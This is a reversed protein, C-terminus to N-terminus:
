TETSALAAVIATHLPEDPTLGCVETVAAEAGAQHPTVALLAAPSRSEHDGTYRFAAAIIHLIHDPRISHRECLLAAGVLRDNRSLKRAPDRGVRTITDELLPNGYRVLIDALIAENQERTLEGPYEAELARSIEDAAGIFIERLDPAELTQHVWTFSREAGLYALSAHCMNYLFLKRAVEAAFNKRPSLEPVVPVTNRVARADYPLPRYADAVVLLPHTARLEESIIPVMRAVSTGVFGVHEEIWHVAGAGHNEAAAVVADRLDRGATLTNECLFVDVGTAGREWRAVLANALTPAIRPLNSVGVATSIVDAAVVEATFAAQDQVMVARVPGIVIEHAEGAYADLVRLPYHEAANLASVISESVDAFVVRYDAEHFLHAMYGRGINGAGIQLLRREGVVGPVGSAHDLNTTNM